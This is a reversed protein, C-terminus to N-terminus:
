GVQSGMHCALVAALLVRREGRPGRLLCELRSVVGDIVHDAPRCRRRLCRRWTSGFGSLVATAHHGGLRRLSVRFRGVASGRGGPPSGSPAVPAAVIINGAVIVTCSIAPGVAGRLPIIRWSRLSTGVPGGGGGSSTAVIGEGPAVVAGGHCM